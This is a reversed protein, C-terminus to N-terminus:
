RLPPGFGNVILARREGRTIPTVEHLTWGPFAVLAGRARPMAVRRDAYRMVLEGGDYDEPHSLQVSGAFKRRAAGPLLDQHEGHSDGVRYRKAMVDWRDLELRWWLANARRFQDLVESELDSGLDLSHYTGNPSIGPPAAAALAM